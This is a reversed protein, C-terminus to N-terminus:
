GFSTSIGDRVGKVINDFHILLKLPPSQSLIDHLLNNPSKHMNLRRLLVFVEDKLQNFDGVPESTVSYEFPTLECYQPQISSMRFLQSSCHDGALMKGRCQFGAIPSSHAKMKVAMLLNMGYFFDVFLLLNLNLKFIRCCVYFPM